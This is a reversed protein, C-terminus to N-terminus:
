FIKDFCNEKWGLLKLYNWRLREKELGDKGSIFSGDWRILAVCITLCEGNHLRLASVFFCWFLIRNENSSLKKGRAMTTSSGVGMTDVRRPDENPQHLIRKETKQTSQSNGAQHHTQFSPSCLVVILSPAGCVNMAHLRVLVFFLSSGPSDM